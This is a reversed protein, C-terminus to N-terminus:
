RILSKKLNLGVSELKVMNMTNKHKMKVEENKDLFKDFLEENGSTEYFSMSSRNVESPLDALEVKDKFDMTMRAADSDEKGM